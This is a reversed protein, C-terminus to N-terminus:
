YGIHVHDFAWPLTFTGKYMRSYVPGYKEYLVNRLRLDVDGNDKLGSYYNVDEQRYVAIQSPINPAELTQGLLIRIHQRTITVPDQCRTSFFSSLLAMAMPIWNQTLLGTVLANTFGPVGLASDIKSGFEGILWNTLLNIAMSEPDGTFALQGSAISQEINVIAGIDFGTQEQFWGNFSADAWNSMSSVDFGFEGNNQIFEQITQVTGPPLGLAGDAAAFLQPSLDNFDGNNFYNIVSRLTEGSLPVGGVQIKSAFYDLAFQTREESTGDILIRSAGYPISPDLRNLGLDLYAYGVNKGAATRSQNMADRYAQTAADVTGGSAIIQQYLAEAANPDGTFLVRAQDYNIGVNGFTQNVANTIQGVGWYSLASKARGVLFAEIDQNNTIGTSQKLIDPISISNGNLYDNVFISAIQNAERSNILQSFIKIGENAVINKLNIDNTSIISSFFNESTLLGQNISSDSLSSFFNM